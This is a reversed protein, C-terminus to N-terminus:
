RGKAKAKGKAPAKTKAKAKAAPRARAPTPKRSTTAPKKSTAAPKRSTTAPKKSTTAPKKSTTAPKKSTAAAAKAKAPAKSTVKTATRAKVPAKTAAKAKAAAKGKAAVKAKGTAKAKATAAARTKAPAAAKADAGAKARTVAAVPRVTAVRPAVSAEPAAPAPVATVQRPPAATQRRPTAPPAAASAEGGARRRRTVGLTGAVRALQEGERASPTGVSVPRGELPLDIAVRPIGTSTDRPSSVEPEPAASAAPEVPLAGRGRVMVVVPATAPQYAVYAPGPEETRDRGRERDRERDRERRSPRQEHPGRPAHGPPHQQPQGPQAAQDPAGVLQATPGGDGGAARAGPLGGTAELERQRALWKERKKRRRRASRSEKRQEGPAGGAGGGVAPHGGPHPPQAPRQPPPVAGGEVTWSLGTEPDVGSQLAPPAGPAGLLQPGGQGQMGQGDGQGRGRRRRRRRKRRGEGPMGPVGPMGGGEPGGEVRVGNAAGNTAHVVPVMGEGGRKRKRRRKRKGGEGPPRNAHPSDFSAFDEAQRQVGQARCIDCHGCAAGEEEGFYKRMFQVRCTELAAYELMADLRRKDGIRRREFIGAIQDIDENTFPRALEWEGTDPQLALGADELLTLVVRLRREQVGASTALDRTSVRRGESTWSGLATCIKHVEGGTPHADRNFHEQIQVDDPAFLLICRSKLGDRGARGAEQVYAEPSGPTHFHLIYRIDPKDIGLGFANTAIMIGRRGKKMFTTQSKEREATGMKGNYRDVPLRAKKLAVWLDDVARVTASYIIGPRQLRKIGRGLQRLKENESQLLRVEFSLNPRYFTARLYEPDRLGLELSIDEAVERTATATLALVPARGATALDVQVARKIAMYAPRFDHGWQSVCHAEDIVILAPKIGQMAEAFAKSTLTEPTTICVVRAGSKLAAMADRREQAKRTSDLRAVPIGLELMKRTQDEILALLPSIVITPGDLMTAPLQYCMSKGGGTPLIAVTDRGSLVSRIIDNQGPKLRKFGHRGFRAVLEREVDVTNLDLDKIGTSSDPVSETSM